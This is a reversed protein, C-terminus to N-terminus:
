GVLQPASAALQDLKDRIRQISDTESVEFSTLLEVAEAPEIPAIEPENKSYAASMGVVQHSRKLGEGDLAVSTTMSMAAESEGLLVWTNAAALLRKAAEGHQAMFEGLQTPRPPPPPAPKTSVVGPQKAAEYAAAADLWHQM